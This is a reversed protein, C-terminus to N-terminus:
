EQIDYGAILAEKTLKFRSMIWRDELISLAKGLDPGQIAPMLDGAKVPFSKGEGLRADELDTPSIESGISAARIALISVAYDPHRYGLELPTAGSLYTDLLRNEAKSLRLHGVPDAGGIVALRPKASQKARM